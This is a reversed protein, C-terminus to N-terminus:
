KGTIITTSTFYFFKLLYPRDMVPRGKYIPKNTRTELISVPTEELPFKLKKMTFCFNGKISVFTEESLFPHFEGTGLEHIVELSVM